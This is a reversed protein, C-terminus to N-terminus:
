TSSTEPSIRSASSNPSFRTIRRLIVLTYPWGDIVTSSSTVLSDKRSSGSIHIYWQLKPQGNSASPASTTIGLRLAVGRSSVVAASVVGHFSIWAGSAFRGSLTYRCSSAASSWPRLKAATTLRLSPSPTTMSKSALRKGYKM